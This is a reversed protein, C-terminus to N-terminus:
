KRAQTLEIINKVSAKAAARVEPKTLDQRLYTEELDAIQGYRSDKGKPTKADTWVNVRSLEEDWAERTIDWFLARRPTAFQQADKCETEPLRVYWTKGVEKVLPTKVGSDEILKTNKERELWNSDYVVLKSSRDLDQYDTRKMDRYERGTIPALNDCSWTAYETDTSWAAACQYRLGDDLSTVRRLWLNPTEALSTAKWTDHGQYDFRQTANFEWDEGTHRIIGGPMGQGKLDVGQLVHQLKIRTPSIETAVIWEKISKNLNVDYVRNDKVYGPKLAETEVFSYDVLYCGTRANIAKKGQELQSPQAFGLAPVLMLAVMSFRM